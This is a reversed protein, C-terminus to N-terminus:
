SLPGAVQNTFYRTSKDSAPEMGGFFHGVNCEKAVDKVYSHLYTMLLAVDMNKLEDADFNFDVDFQDDYKVLRLLVSPLIANGAKMDDLEILISVDGNFSLVSELSEMNLQGDDMLAIDETCEVGVIRKADSILRILIQVVYTKNVREFVVEFLNTM